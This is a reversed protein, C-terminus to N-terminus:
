DRHMDFHGTASGITWNGQVGNSADNVLGQYNVYHNIGGTGDYLKVFSLRGSHIEGNITAFLYKTKGNGFTAPEAIKGTFSAGDTSTVTLKFAVLQKNDSYSYTGDWTGLMPSASSPTTQTSSEYTGGGMRIRALRSYKGNPYQELYASYELPNNRNKIEDWYSQEFSANDIAPVQGSPAITTLHTSSNKGSFSFDGILSSSEWPLQKGGSAQYVSKRVRKFVMEIDTDPNKLSELFNQTYLGNRGTGDAAVSGPATAYAIYTGSPADVQALGRSVSRFSRAFPNNRCADLVVINVADKAMDMYNLVLNLDVSQDELEAESQIDANVPILFNRGKSQIGHGAYYFFGVGGQKLSEGFERLALKMDKQSANTRLTVKFGLSKLIQAVDTADNAPNALPSDKYTANGVVLAIRLKNNGDAPTRASAEPTPQHPPKKDAAFSGSTTLCLLMIIIFLLRNILM